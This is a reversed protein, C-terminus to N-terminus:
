ASPSNKEADTDLGLAAEDQELERIRALLQRAHAVPLRRINAETLPEAHSWSHLRARLRLEDAVVPVIQIKGDTYINYRGEECRRQEYWGLYRKLEYWDAGIEVRVLDEGILM